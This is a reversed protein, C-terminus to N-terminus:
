HGCQLMKKCLGNRSEFASFVLSIMDSTMVSSPMFEICSVSLIINKKRSISLTVVPADSGVPMDGVVLLITGNFGSIFNLFIRTGTHAPEVVLFGFV